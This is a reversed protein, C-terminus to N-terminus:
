ASDDPGFVGRRLQRNLYVACILAFINVGYYSTAANAGLVTLLSNTGFNFQVNFHTNAGTQSVVAAVSLVDGMVWFYAGPIFFVPIMVLQHILSMWLGARRSLWILISGVLGLLYTLMTVGAFFLQMPPLTRLPTQKLAEDFYAFALIAGFLQTITIISLFIRRM